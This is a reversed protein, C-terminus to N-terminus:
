NKTPRKTELNLTRQENKWNRELANELESFSSSNVWGRKIWDVRDSTALFYDNISEMIEAAECEILDLQQVFPAVKLVTIDDSSPPDASSVLTDKRRLKELYSTMEAHFDDYAISCPLQKELLAEAEMKVWGLAYRICLDESEKPVFAKAAFAQQLESHLAGTGYVLTFRKIIEIAISKRGEVFFEM